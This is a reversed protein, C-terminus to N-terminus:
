FRPRPNVDASEVGLEQSKKEHLRLGSIIGHRGIAPKHVTAAHEPM